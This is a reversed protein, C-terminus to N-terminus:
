AVDQMKEYSGLTKLTGEIQPTVEGTAIYDLWAESNDVTPAEQKVMPKWDPFPAYDLEMREKVVHAKYPASYVNKGRLDRVTELRYRLLVWTRYNVVPAYLAMYSFGLPKTAIDAIHLGDSYWLWGCVDARFTSFDYGSGVMNVAETFQNSM